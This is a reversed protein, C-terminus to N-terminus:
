TNLCIVIVNFSVMRVYKSIVLIALNPNLNNTGVSKTRIVALTSRLRKYSM